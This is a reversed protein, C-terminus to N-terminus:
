KGEDSIDIGLHAYPKNRSSRLIRYRHHVEGIFDQMIVKYLIVTEM